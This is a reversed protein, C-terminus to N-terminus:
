EGETLSDPVGGCCGDGLALLGLGARVEWLGFGDGRTEGRDGDELVGDGDKARRVTRLGWDKRRKTTTAKRM